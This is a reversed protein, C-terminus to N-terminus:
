FGVNEEEEDEYSPKATSQVLLREQSKTGQNYKPEVSDLEDGPLLATMQGVEGELAPISLCRDEAWARVGVM